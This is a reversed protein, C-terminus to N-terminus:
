LQQANPSDTKILAVIEDIIFDYGKTNFHCCADRYLVEKNDQFMMTLDHFAVKSKQLIVGESILYPYGLRAGQAYPHGKIFAIKREKETM